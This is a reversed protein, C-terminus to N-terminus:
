IFYMPPPTGRPLGAKEARLCLDALTEEGFARRARGLAEDLAQACVDRGRAREPLEFPCTDLAELVRVVAIREAPVALAYGGARGRFVKVVGAQRLRRLIQEAYTVPISQRRAIEALGTSKVAKGESAAHYALDFAARLGYIASLPIMKFGSWQARTKVM